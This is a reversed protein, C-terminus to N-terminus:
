DGWWSPLGLGDGSTEGIIEMPAFPKADEKQENPVPPYKISLVRFRVEEGIDLPLEEGEYLWVWIGDDGRKCPRAIRHEPIYIDNFFGLSLRLCDEDSSEIKGMLIEGIFPRFVVMRFKVKYMASGDGPFIFGGEVSHVDYISICLGLNAIVKDLFLRELEEKIASILPRNLLCPPIPLDHEIESLCFM